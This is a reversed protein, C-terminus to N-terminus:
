HCCGGCSSSDCCSGGEHGGCSGCNSEYATNVVLQGKIFADVAEDCSGTVNPIVSISYDKLGNIAGDGINQCIVVSVNYDLMTAVVADHGSGFPQIVASDAIEGDFIEYLKFEEAHGFHTGVNGNDHTVAVVM